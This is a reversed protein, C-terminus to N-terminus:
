ENKNDGKAVELVTDLVDIVDKLVKKPVQVTESSM